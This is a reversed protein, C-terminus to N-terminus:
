QVRSGISSSPSLESFKWGAGVVTPYDCRIRPRLSHHRSTYIRSRSPTKSRRGSSRAPLRRRPFWLQIREDIGSLSLLPVFPVFQEHGKEKGPRVDGVLHLVEHVVAKPTGVSFINKIQSMTTNVTQHSDGTILILGHIEKKFAPLWDPNFTGSAPKTGKDGLAEAQALMGKEFSDDGIADKIGLQM